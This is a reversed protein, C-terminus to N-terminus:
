RNQPGKGLLTDVGVPFFEVTKEGNNPVVAVAQSPTINYRPDLGDFMTFGPFTETLTESDTKLTFRGCM